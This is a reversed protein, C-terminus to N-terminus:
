IAAVGAEGGGVKADSELASSSRSLFSGRGGRGASLRPSRGGKGGRGRGGRGSVSEQGGAAVAASSGEKFSGGGEKFSDGRGGGGVDFSTGLNGGSSDKFSGGGGSGGGGEGADISSRPNGPENDSSFSAGTSRKAYLKQAGSRFGPAELSSDGLESAGHNDVEPASLAELAAAAATTATGAAAAAGFAGVEEPTATSASSPASSLTVSPVSSCSFSSSASSSSSPQRHLAATHCATPNTFCSYCLDYDCLRCGWMPMGVAFRECQDDSLHCESCYWGEEPTYFDDLGHKGRCDSVLGGLSGSGGGGGQTLADAVGSNQRSGTRKFGLMRPETASPSDLSESRDVAVYLEESEVGHRRGCGGLGAPNTTNDELSASLQTSDTKSKRQGKSASTSSSASSSSSLRKVSAALEKGEKSGRPGKGSGGGASPPLKKRFSPPEGPTDLQLMEQYAAQETTTASSSASSSAAAPTYRHESEDRGNFPSAGRKSGGNVRTEKSSGEKRSSSRAPSADASPFTHRQKRQTKKAAPESSTPKRLTSLSSASTSPTHHQRPQIPSVLSLSSQEPSVATNAASSGLTQNPSSLMTLHNPHLEASPGFLFTDDGHLGDSGDDGEDDGGDNDLGQGKSQKKKKTVDRVRAGDLDIIFGGGGDQKGVGGSPVRVRRTEDVGNSGGSENRKQNRPSRKKPAKKLSDLRRSMYHFSPLDEDDDEVEEGEQGQEESQRLPSSPGEGGRGRPSLSRSVRGRSPSSHKKKDRRKKKPSKQKKTKEGHDSENEGGNSEDQNGHQEGSYERLHSFNSVLGGGSGRRKVPSRKRQDKAKGGGGKSSGRSSALSERSLQWDFDDDDQSAATSLVATSSV